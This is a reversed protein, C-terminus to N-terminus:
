AEVRRGAVAQQRWSQSEVSSVLVWVPGGGM